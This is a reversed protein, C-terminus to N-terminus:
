GHHPPVDRLFDDDRSGSRREGWDATEDTTTDPFLEGLQGARRRRAAKKEAEVDDSMLDM